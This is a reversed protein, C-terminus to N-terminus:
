EHKREREITSFFSFLAHRITVSRGGADMCKWTHQIDVHRKKYRRAFSDFHLETLAIQSKPATLHARLGVAM